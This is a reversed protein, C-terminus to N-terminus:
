DETEEEASHPTLQGRLRKVDPLRPTRGQGGSTIEREEDILLFKPCAWMSLKRATDM